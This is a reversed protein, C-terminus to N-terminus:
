SPVFNEISISVFLCYNASEYKNATFIEREAINVLFSIALETIQLKNASCNEHEASNLLFFRKIIEPRTKKKYRILQKLRYRIQMFEM